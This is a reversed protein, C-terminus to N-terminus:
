LSNCRRKRVSWGQITQAFKNAKTGAIFVTPIIASDPVHSTISLQARCFAHISQLYRATNNSKRKFLIIYSTPLLHCSIVGYNSALVAVAQVSSLYMGTTNMYVPIFIIWVFMYILMSFTISKAENYKDPLKRGRYALIFCALALFGIYGLMIGFAAYSGEDCQMIILEPIKYIEIVFPEKLIIWVMCLCFQLGTLVAILVVPQYTLAPTPKGSKYSEFALIIRLSKVLICSVCLTFSIGYLPQRIKCIINTPQGIFLVISVLSVLLSIGLLYTYNGGAAKVAPTDSYKIFLTETILVLLSGLSAFTLLSHAFPDNWYFYEITRNNCQFSTNYSWQSVPCKLCKDLDAEPTYYGEACEICDYCCTIFSHKKFYGPACSKSCNSFPVTKEKTHWNLISRNLLIKGDLIDFKGVNVFKTSGNTTQWYILNYGTLTDGFENFYLVEGNFTYKQAKLERLLQHQSLNFDKECKGNKCMINDLAQAIATVALFTSYIISWESNEVLYDDNVLSVNEARCALPSKHKLSDSFICDKSSSQICELYEMYEKTCSVRLEKYEELFLNFANNLPPQLNKSYDVFGPMRVEKFNLGIITGLKDINDMSFVEQSNVWIDGAIWTRSINYKLCETFLKHVIPGKIFVVIVNASSTKLATITNTIEAEMSPHKMNSPIVKSFSTCIQENKFYINLYEVVSRGYDDDSSIIGVWNWRFEQLLKAIAKTQHEDNPITRLFSPFKIKDSLLPTSSAPSLQPVSHFSLIRSIAISNESYIEGVVAKVTPAVITHNCDTLNNISVLEPILRTTAQIAKMADSCSDYIEYGLTIGPLLTSNNIQEITYIMALAEVMRPVDLGTCIFADDDTPQFSFKEHIPFIGGIMIDGLQRAVPYEQINCSPILEWFRCLLLAYFWVHWYM